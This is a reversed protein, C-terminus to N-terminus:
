LTIKSKKEGDPEKGIFCGILNGLICLIAASIQSVGVQFFDTGIILKSCLQLILVYLFGSCISYPIRFAPIFFGICAGSLLNAVIYIVIIVADTLSPDPDFQYVFATLILLGCLSLLFAWCVSCLLIFFPNKRM